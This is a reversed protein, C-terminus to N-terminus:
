QTLNASAALDNRRGSIIKEAAAGFIRGGLKIDEDYTNEAYHHSIGRISPVFLMSAPLLKAFVQADHMAGSPMRTYKEPALEQAAMELHGQMKPDMMKPLAKDVINIKCQCSGTENAEQVLAFLAHEFKELQEVSEDRFQFLLEAKGPIISPAGPDLTIRGVTWVSREATIERFRSEMATAFQVLAAGADKRSAMQTAGAHNQEGSFMIRYQWLGVLSTVIGVQLGNSDLYDGQEIHAELYGIYRSVDIHERKRDSLGVRQLAQRLSEGTDKNRAKDIESEQLDDCFSRSGLFQLFHCEEDAWAGVDVALPLNQEHISQALELGFIVGLIGDLWGAYNQSESHSGTLLVPGTRQSKGIVNGVGDIKAQLGACEMRQKLWERAEMDQPSFTPRHVGTKYAGFQAVERLTSILREENIKVM